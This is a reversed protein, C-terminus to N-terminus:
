KEVAEGAEADLKASWATSGTLGLDVEIYPIDIEFGNISSGRVNAWNHEYNFYVPIDDNGTDVRTLKTQISITHDTEEQASTNDITAVPGKEAPYKEFMPGRITNISSSLWVNDETASISSWESSDYTIGFADEVFWSTRALGTSGKLTATGTVLWEDDDNLSVVTLYFESESKSRRGGLTDTTFEDNDNPDDSPDFPPDVWEAGVRHSSDHPIGYQNLLKEAKEIRGESLLNRLEDIIGESEVTAKRDGESATASGLAISGAAIAGTSRMFKRRRMDM